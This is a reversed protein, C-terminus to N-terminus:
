DEVEDINTKLIQDDMITAVSNASTVAFKEVGYNCAGFKLRQGDDDYISITTDNLIYVRGKSYQMDTITNQIKFESLKEGKKSVLVITNESRNNALNVTFVLGNKSTRFMNIEGSAAIENTAFSSWNVFKYKDNCIISIGKGTNASALILSSGVDVTHIPDANKFDLILLKSSYQGSVVGLTSIALRDGAPNVLVNTIMDKASNWTFLENLNKDYVTVVSTYNDSHTAVAFDGNKSISATIIEKETQLTHIKGSLNYIYANKGGQDYVLARTDSTTLIPNAFGHAENFIIKGSNAYSAISSDTLVYYYSGNSASNLVTGGSVDAPYKGHGMVATFNVINEYLGVPLVASLFICILCIAAITAVFIRSRRRNKQKKGRVVKIDNEPVIGVNKERRNSMLISNDSVTKSKKHKLSKKFKKRKYDPM